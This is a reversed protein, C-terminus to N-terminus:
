LIIKFPASIIGDVDLFIINEGTKLKLRKTKGRFVLSQNTFRPIENVLANNVFLKATPSFGSGLIELTKDSISYRAFDIRLKTGLNINADSTDVIKTGSNTYVVIKLRATTSIQKVKFDFSRLTSPLNLAIPQFSRGGNDSFLLDQSIVESVLDSTLHWRIKILQSKSFFEGGNPSILFLQNPKGPVSTFNRVLQDVNPSGWGTCLDYGSEASFGVLSASSNNGVIVDNFFLQRPNTSSQQIKGLQYIRPNVNGLGSTKSFQNTLSLIGAWVPAAASTGGIIRAFKLFVVFFGPKNPDALFSVDPLTRGTQSIEALTQYEPRPFVSSVGGGSGTWCEEDQYSIVDGDSNINVKLSTGGVATVFPSAAIANVQQSQNDGCENAGSDGSAVLVSQGQAAAQKFLNNFITQLKPFAFKECIGFSVSLVKTNPLNNLFYAISQDIDNYRDAIVVQITAKPAVAGSLQSDLLVELEEIPGRKVIEKGAPIKIPTNPSLKFLRRFENVDSIEFDSRAVIGIDQGNGEVGVAFLPNFNYAVHIDQPGIAFNGRDIVQPLIEIQQKIIPQTFLFNHLKVEIVKSAWNAPLLPQQLTAYYIQDDLEFLQMQTQFAQEIQLATAQFDLRLNNAWTQSIKIKSDKLWKIVSQYDAKLLGFQKGFENPTLWKQYKDSKPDLQQTLLLDLLDANRLHFYITGQILMNSPANSKFKAKKPLLTQVVPLLSHPKTQVPMLILNLMLFILTTIGLLFKKKVM